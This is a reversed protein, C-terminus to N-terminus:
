TRWYLNKADTLLPEKADASGETDTLSEIDVSNILREVDALRNNGIISSM